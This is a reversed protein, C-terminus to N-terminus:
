LLTYDGLNYPDNIQISDVEYFEVHMLFNKGISIGTYEEVNGKVDDAVMHAFTNTAKGDFYLRANISSIKNTPSAFVHLVMVTNPDSKVDNSDPDLEYKLYLGTGIAGKKVILKWGFNKPM